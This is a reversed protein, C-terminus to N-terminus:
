TWRRPRPATLSPWTALWLGVATLVIGLAAVLYGLSKTKM